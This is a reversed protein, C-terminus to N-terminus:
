LRVIPMSLAYWHQSFVISLLHHLAYILQVHQWHVGWMHITVILVRCRSKRFVYPISRWSGQSAYPYTGKTQLSGALGYKSYIVIFAVCFLAGLCLLWTVLTQAKRSKFSFLRGIGTPARKRTVPLNYMKWLSTLGVSIWDKYNLISEIELSVLLISCQIYCFM